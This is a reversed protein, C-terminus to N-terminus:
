FRSSKLRGDHTFQFDMSNVSKINRFKTIDSAFSDNEIQQSHLLKEKFFFAFISFYKSHLNFYYKKSIVDLCHYKIREKNPRALGHHIFVFLM